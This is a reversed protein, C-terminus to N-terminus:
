KLTNLPCYSKEELKRFCELLLSMNPLIGRSIDRSDRQFPQVPLANTLM